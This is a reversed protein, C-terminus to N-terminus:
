PSPPWNLVASVPFHDSPYRGETNQRLIEAELVKFEPTLFIFDIKEGDADGRFGNFTGVKQASPHLARFADFLRVASKPASASDLPLAQKGLLHLIAPNSEGANFDGTIIVPDESARSRIRETLLLISKERSPQSRHDLHTNFVYLSRGSMKETFRGWSCIRTIANGWSKSGPVEPSDSYWFTGSDSLEFRESRYLIPSYEGEQRGDDRGVGVLSFQPNRAMIEELQFQLGEQIGLFDPDFQSVVASVLEKRNNWSNAGDNALGYRINFSLVRLTQEEPPSSQGSCTGLFLIGILVLVSGHLVKRM